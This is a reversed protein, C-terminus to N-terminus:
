RMVQNRHFGTFKIYQSLFEEIIHISVMEIQYVYSVKILVIESYYLCESFNSQFITIVSKFHFNFNFFIYKM